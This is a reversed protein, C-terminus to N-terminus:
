NWAGAACREACRVMLKHRHVGRQGLVIATFERSVADREATPLHNERLLNAGLVTLVGFTSVVSGTSSTDTRYGQM